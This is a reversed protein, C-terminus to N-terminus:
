PVCYEDNWLQVEIYKYKETIENMYDDITGKYASVYYFLMEKTYMTLKDQQIETVMEGNKKVVEM